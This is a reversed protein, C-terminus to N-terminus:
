GVYRGLRRRRFPPERAANKRAFLWGFLARLAVLGFTFTLSWAGSATGLVFADSADHFIGMPIVVLILLIPISIAVLSIIVFQAAQHGAWRRLATLRERAKLDMWAEAKTKPHLSYFLLAIMIAAIALNLLGGNSNVWAAVGVLAIADPLNEWRPQDARTPFYSGVVDRYALDFLIRGPFLYFACGLVLLELSLNGPVGKANSAAYWAVLGAAASM